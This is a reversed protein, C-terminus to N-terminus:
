TTKDHPLHSFFLFPKGSPSDQLATKDPTLFSSILIVYSHLGLNPRLVRKPASLGVPWVKRSRIARQISPYKSTSTRYDM